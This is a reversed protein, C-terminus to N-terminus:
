EDSTFEIARPPSLRLRLNAYTLESFKHLESGRSLPLLEVLRCSEGGLHSTLLNMMCSFESVAMGVSVNSTDVSGSVSVLSAWSISCSHLTWEWACVTKPRVLSSNRAM